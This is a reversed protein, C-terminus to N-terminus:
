CAIPSWKTGLGGSALHGTKRFSRVFISVPTTEGGRRASPNLGGFGRRRRRQQARNVPM